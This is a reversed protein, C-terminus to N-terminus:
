VVVRSHERGRKPVVPELGALVNAAFGRWAERADVAPAVIDNRRDLACLLAAALSKADPECLTALPETALQELLGGVRTAVVRRGAALATPAIGSQSAERYPLVVVDAWSLITSVECEPVWRNEVKVGPLARLNALAPSEPGQGVVRVEMDPRTGVLRLAEALLDLGKYARLRGFCLVRRPGTHAGPPAVPGFALPPLAVVIVPVKKRPLSCSMRVGSAVHESLSIVLNVRRLLARQLAFLMPFDDGPHAQADHVVVAVPVGIRRLATVMLLDLPGPMACVAIRPALRRLRRSLQVVTVPARVFRWALGLLGAYTQVPLDCRPAHPGRLIEAASSLSLITAIGGLAEFGEALLAALRPGAGYRGWQWVVVRM